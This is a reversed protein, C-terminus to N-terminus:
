RLDILGPMSAPKPADADLRATEQAALTPSLALGLPRSMRIIDGDRVVTLNEINPNSRWGPRVAPGGVACLGAPEAPGQGSRACHGGPGHRRGSPRADARGQHRGGGPGEPDGAGRGRRPRDSSAPHGQDGPGLAITWTAGIATAFVPVGHAAEIRVASYDAGRTAQVASFQVLGRPAHSVDLTARPTSCVWVADGRRFVAAGARNAWAFTFLVQANAVKSEMHVVGGAPIPNPRQAEAGGRPGGRARGRHASGKQFVNVFATGDASDVKADADAALTFVIQLHGGLHRKEATKIWKPPATRLRSIDPDADRPFILTLV